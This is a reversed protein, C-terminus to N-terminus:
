LKRAWMLMFDGLVIKIGNRPSIDYAAELAYFGAEKIRKSVLFGTGLIYDKNDCSCFHTCDRKELIGSGTWRIEQLAVIDAKYVSLQSILTKFAGATYL